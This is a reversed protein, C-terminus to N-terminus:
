GALIGVVDLSKDFLGIGRLFLDTPRLNASVEGEMCLGRSLDLAVLASFPGSIRNQRVPVVAENIGVPTSGYAEYFQLTGSASNSAGSLGDEFLAHAHDSVSTEFSLAEGLEV